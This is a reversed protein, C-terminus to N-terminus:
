QNEKEGLIGLQDKQSAFEKGILLVTDDLKAARGVIRWAEEPSAVVEAGPLAREDALVLVLRDAVKKVYRITADDCKAAELAVLLRRKSLEAASDVVMKISVDTSAKDVVVSYPRDGKLYEYNDEVAEVAAAGEEVTNFPIGLVYASAIAATLNYANAKGVLHTAATLSTHHDITLDVETGKRYLTLKNIRAEATEQEGYTIVQHDAIELLGAQYTDPIVAYNLDGALLEDAEPSKSTAIVTDIGLAMLGGSGMLEPTVEVIFFEAANRKADKLQRQLDSVVDESGPVYTVVVRGTEKLIALLLQTTSTKGYEGVVVIVRVTSAPNGYRASVLKARGKRYLGLVRGALGGSATKEMDGLFEKM